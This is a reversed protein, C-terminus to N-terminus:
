NGRNRVQEAFMDVLRPGQVKLNYNEEVKRRGANGMRERLSPDRILMQLANCWDEETKALFGNVGHEVIQSNVGVPSAVVPLGCAMYQILKYGCKGRMWPTDPLPMIGIDMDRIDQVERTESWARAVLWPSAANEAGMGVGLVRARHAEVPKRISQAFPKVCRNWTEPTGIWGVTVPEARISRPSADYAEADVVTPVIEVRFAGAAEAYKALYANGVMVLTSHRMVSVFKEGLLMRVVRRSHEDYRHFVADDYDTIIPVGKPFVSLELFAPVWPLAEKELWIVDINRRRRLSALRQQYARLIQPFDRRGSYFNKLYTDDFLSELTVSFGAQELVPIYQM